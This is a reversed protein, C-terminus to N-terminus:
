KVFRLALESIALLFIVAVSVGLFLNRKRLSETEMRLAQTETQLLQIQSAAVALEGKIRTNELELASCRDELEKHVALMSSFRSNMADQLGSPDRTSAAERVAPVLRVAHEVAKTVPRPTGVFDLLDPLFSVLRLVHQLVGQKFEKDDASM